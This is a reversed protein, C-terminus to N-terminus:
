SRISAPGSHEYLRMHEAMVRVVVACRSQAGLKRYLRGLHTHVTHPSMGLDRAIAYETADDFVGQVIQLERPSLRLERAIAHWEPDDFLTRDAARAPPGLLERERSTM